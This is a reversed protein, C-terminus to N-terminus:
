SRFGFWVRELLTTPNSAMAQFRPSFYDSNRGKVIRVAGFSAMV